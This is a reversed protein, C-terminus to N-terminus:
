KSRLSHRSLPMFLSLFRKLILPATSYLDSAKLFMTLDLKRIPDTRSEATLVRERAFGGKRLSTLLSRLIDKYLFLIMKFM